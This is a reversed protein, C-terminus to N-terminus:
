PVYPQSVPSYEFLAPDRKRERLQRICDRANAGIAEITRLPLRQPSYLETAIWTGSINWRDSLPLGDLSKGVFKQLARSQDNEPAM